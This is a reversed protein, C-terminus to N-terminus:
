SRSQSVHHTSVSHKEHEDAPQAAREITTQEHEPRDAEDSRELERSERTPERTGPVVPVWSDLVPCPGRRSVEGM